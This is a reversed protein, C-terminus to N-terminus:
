RAIALYAQGAIFPAVKGRRVRKNKQARGMKSGTGKGWRGM